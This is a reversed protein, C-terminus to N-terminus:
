ARAAESPVEYTYPYLRRLVDLYSVVGVLRNDEDVVPVAGVRWELLHRAVATLTEDARSVLAPASMAHSVKMARARDGPLDVQEAAVRLPDGLVRRVDRDSLMGLVRGEEDVVPLHRVGKETMRAAATLLDDDGKVAEPAPTMVELVRAPAAEPAPWRRQAQYGLVDSSTLIGVLRGQKVVPLCGIHRDLMRAAAQSLDDDPSAVEAPQTMAMRVPARAGERLGAKAEYRLIDNESLVGVVEEDRLVPLHRVGAWLMMQSALALDDQESVSLLPAETMLDRVRMM